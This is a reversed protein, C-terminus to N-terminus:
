RQAVGTQKALALAALRAQAQQKLQGADRRVVMQYFVRAVAPKGDAEAEQAKAFYGAVEQDRQSASAAAEARIAAVSGPLVAPAAPSPEAAGGV